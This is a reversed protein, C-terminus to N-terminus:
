ARKRPQKQPKAGPIFQLQIKRVPFKEGTKTCDRIFQRERYNPRGSHVLIQFDNLDGLERGPARKYRRQTARIVKRPTIYKVARWARNTLLAQTVSAVMKM